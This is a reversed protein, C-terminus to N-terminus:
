KKQRQRKCWSFIGNGFGMNKYVKDYVALNPEFCEYSFSTQYTVWHIVRQRESDLVGNVDLQNYLEVATDQIVKNKNAVCQDLFLRNSTWISGDAADEENLQGSTILDVLEQQRKLVASKIDDLKKEFFAAQEANLKLKDIAWDRLQRQNARDAAAEKEFEAVLAEPNNKFMDLYRPFPNENEASKDATQEGANEKPTEGPLGVSDKQKSEAVRIQAKRKPKATSAGVDPISVRGRGGADARQHCRAGGSVDASSNAAAAAFWGAVAGIALAALAVM